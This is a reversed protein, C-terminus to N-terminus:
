EVCTVRGLPLLMNRMDAFSYVIRHVDFVGVRRILAQIIPTRTEAERRAQLRAEQARRLAAVDANGDFTVICLMGLLVNTDSATEGGAIQKLVEVM